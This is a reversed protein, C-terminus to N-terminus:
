LMVNCPKAKLVEDAVRRGEGGRQGVRGRLALVQEQARVVGGRGRADSLERGLVGRRVRAVLGKQALDALEHLRQKVRREDRGPSLVSLVAGNRHPRRERQGLEGDLVPFHEHREVLEEGRGGRLNEIPVRLSARTKFREM